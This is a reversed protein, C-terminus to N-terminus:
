GTYGYIKGLSVGGDICVTSGTINASEDNVLYRIAFAVDKTFGPRKIAMKQLWYQKYKEDLFESMPSEIWGPAVCNIRIGYKSYNLAVAKSFHIMACKSVGYAELGPLLARIGGLSSVGVINGSLKSSRCCNIYTSVAVRYGEMNTEWIQKWIDNTKLLNEGDFYGSSYIMGHFPSNKYSDSITKQLTDRDTVDVKNIKVNVHYKEEIDTKMEMLMDIRRAFLVLDAGESALQYATAKGIGSSAGIILYRSRKVSTIVKVTKLPNDLIPKLPNIDIGGNIKLTQGIMYTNEMGYLFEVGYYLDEFITERKIIMWPELEISTNEVYTWYGLDIFNAIIKYTGWELLKTKVWSLLESQAGYIKAANPLRSSQDLYNMIFIIKGGGMNKMKEILLEVEHYIIKQPEKDYTNYFSIICGLFPKDEDGGQKKQLSEIIYECENKLFKNNGIIEYKEM